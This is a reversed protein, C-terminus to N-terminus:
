FITAKGHANKFAFFSLFQKTINNKSTYSSCIIRSALRNSYSILKNTTKYRFLFMNYTSTSLYFPENHATCQDTDSTNHERQYIKQLSHQVKHASYYIVPSVAFECSRATHTCCCEFFAQYPSFFSFFAAVNLSRRVHHFSVSSFSAAFM